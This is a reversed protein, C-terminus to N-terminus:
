LAPIRAPLTTPHCTPDLLALAAEFDRLCPRGALCAILSSLWDLGRHFVSMPARGHNKLKTPSENELAAGQSLCWCFGFALFGFWGCLRKAQSLRCSELDFGRGKLAQFLTEIKWRHRYDSLLDCRKNGIIILYEGDYLHRGGVYVWQNWLKMRHPKCRCGQSGFWDKAPLDRADPHLFYEKAKVRIRFDLGRQCLWGIWKDGIFERDATLFKWRQASFMQLFQSMLDIREDTDSAGAEPMVTWLLPVASGYVVISLVLLNITTKGRKWETRDLALIWAGKPMLAAIARAWVELDLEQHDLCRRLQMRNAEANQKGPMLNVVHQLSIKKGTLLAVLARALHKEFPLGLKQLKSVIANISYPRTM